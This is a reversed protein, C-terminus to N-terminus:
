ECVSLQPVLFNFFIFWQLSQPFSIDLLEVYQIFHATFCLFWNLTSGLSLGSLSFSNLKIFSYGKVLIPSIYPTVSLVM